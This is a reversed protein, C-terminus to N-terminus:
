VTQDFQPQKRLATSPLNREGLLPMTLRIWYENSTDEIILSYEEPRFLLALQKRVNALGLGGPRDIVTPHVPKSNGIVCHLQRQDRDVRVNVSVWGEGPQQDMGHKFANEIFTVLLLPPIYLNGADADIQCTIRDPQRHRLREIAVYGELFTLERDLRVFGSNTEYLAYRLLDSLDLLTSAAEPTTKRIQSFINNLANFLFHPNLQSRLFRLNMFINEKEEAEKRVALEGYQMQLAVSQDREHLSNRVAKILLPIVVYSMYTAYIFFVIGGNTFYPNVSSALFDPLRASLFLPLKQYRSAFFAFSFHTYVALAAYYLLLSLVVIGLLRFPKHRLRLVVPLVLQGLAYFALLTAIFHGTNWELVLQPNNADRFVRSFQSYTTGFALVWYVVHLTVRQWTVPRRHRVESEDVNRLWPTSTAVPSLSAPIVM